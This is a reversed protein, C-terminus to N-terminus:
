FDGNKIQSEVLKTIDFEVKAMSILPDDAFVDAYNKDRGDDFDELTKLESIIEQGRQVAEGRLFSVGKRIFKFDFMDNDYGGSIEWIGNEKKNYETRRFEYTTTGSKYRLEYRDNTLADKFYIPEIVYEDLEPMPPYRPDDVEANNSYFIPYTDQAKFDWKEIPLGLQEFKNYIDKRFSADSYRISM